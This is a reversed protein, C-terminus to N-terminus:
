RFHSSYFVVLGVLLLLQLFGVLTFEPLVAALRGTIQLIQQEQYGTKESTTTFTVSGVDYMPGIITISGQTGRIKDPELNEIRDSELHVHILHRLKKM